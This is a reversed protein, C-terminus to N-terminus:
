ALPRWWIEAPTADDFLDGACLIADAQRNEAVALIRDIVSLRARSLTEQDAQSFGPFTKGLHWDATHVITLAVDDEKRPKVSTEAGRRGAKRRCSGFLEARTTPNSM